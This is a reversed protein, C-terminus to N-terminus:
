NENKKDREKYHRKWSLAEGGRPKICYRCIRGYRSEKNFPRDCRICIAM